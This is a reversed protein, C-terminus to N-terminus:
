PLVGLAQNLRSVATARAIAQRELDADADFAAARARLLTALDSEGLSFSKQTLQLTDATLETRSRALALRREAAAGDRRASDADLQLQQHLQTVRAQAEALEARAAASERATRPASSLPISLKVGVVNAYAEGANGRERVVRLAIEPPERRSHDALRLQAQAARAAAAASALRPHDDIAPAGGAVPEEALLRPPPAGLLAHLAAEAQGESRSAEIWEAEAAQTEARALNADTRALDGARWRREVDAQLTQASQWRRQALAAGNRAEALHWWAERVNGALELRQALAEAGVQAQRAQALSQQADRQGPLWLPTAFEAEWERQGNRANLRDTLHALSVTPPAPTWASAAQGDARAQAERQTLAQASPLRQWALDVAQALSIAVREPADRRTTPPAEIAALPMALAMGFILACRKM